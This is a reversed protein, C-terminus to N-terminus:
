CDLREGRQFNHLDTDCKDGFIMDSWSHSLFLIFQRLKASNSLDIRWQFFGSFRFYIFLGNGRERFRQKKGAIWKNCDRCFVLDFSREDKLRTKAIADNSRLNGLSPNRIGLAQLPPLSSNYAPNSDCTPFVLTTSKKTFPLFHFSSLFNYKKKDSQPGQRRRCSIFVM